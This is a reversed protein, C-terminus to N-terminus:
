PQWPQRPRPTSRQVHERGLPEGAAVASGTEGRSELAPEGPRPPVDIAADRLMQQERDDLTMAPAVTVSDGTHVGMPDLNEITCVIVANDNRDRVVELEIEDWGTVSREMLVQSIPSAALANAAVVELDAPTLAVGGGEGGLTFAPRLIIPYGLVEAAERAADIDTAIRSELVPIGVERMCDKFLDRDEARRIVDVDAGILEVGHRELVGAEALDIALNLATQGGLTPLIADPQEVQIIREAAEVDLPEVYTRDAVDPDTMITAPNSNVLVIRYGEDRLARCGQTGSYDFEGAQGIVIPGSGLVMITRLDDRRPM